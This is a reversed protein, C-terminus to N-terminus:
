RRAPARRKAADPGIYSRIIANMKPITQRGYATQANLYLFGHGQKAGEEFHVTCGADRMRNAYLHIEDHLIEWEGCWFLAPPMGRLTEALVPSARWDWRDEESRLYCSEVFMADDYRLGYGEAFEQYSRYNPRMDFAGSWLYQLAPLKVGSDRAMMCVVTAINAGACGGGIGVRNTDFGMRAGNDMVYKLTAYCDEIHAPFKHEPAIRYDPHVVACGWDLVNRSESADITDLGEGFVWGGGHTSIYVGVPGKVGEPMFVRTPIDGAPGPININYATVGKALQPPPQRRGRARIAAVGLQRLPPAALAADYVAKMEPDLAAMRQRRLSAYDTVSKLPPIDGPSPPMAKHLEPEQGLAGTAAALAGGVAGMAIVSRRSAGEKSESM